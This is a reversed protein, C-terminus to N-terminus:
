QAVWGGDAVLSAGNVYASLGSLLFLVTPALEEPGAIRGVPTREVIWEEYGSTADLHPQLMPTRVYGPVVANVRIRKPALEIALAHTMASTAGKTATYASCGAFGVLATTSSLFVISSGEGLHPVAAQTMMLPAVVNVRLQREVSELTTDELPRPDFLSACHVIGDLSGFADVAEKVIRAPADPDELEAIVAHPKGGLQEVEAVEAQLRQEDRGVLVPSAGASGLARVIQAGIGASAGTVIISKGALGWDLGTM